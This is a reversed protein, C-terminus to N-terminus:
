LLQVSLCQLLRKPHLYWRPDLSASTYKSFQIINSFSSYLYHSFILNKRLPFLKKQYNFECLVRFALNSFRYIVLSSLRAPNELHFKTLRPKSHLWYKTYQWALFRLIASNWGSLCAIILPTIYLLSILSLLTCPSHRPMLLRRLVHCAAILRPSSCIDMSGRIESHPFGDSCYESVTPYICLGAPPSGSFQFM